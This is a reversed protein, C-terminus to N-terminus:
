PQLDFDHTTSDSAVTVRLESQRNYKAPVYQEVRETIGRSVEEETPNELTVVNTGTIQVAQEGPSVTTAYRGDVIQAGTTQGTGNVPMFSITGEAVPKGEFQVQGSVAIQDSRTGGCGMVLLMVSAAWVLRHRVDRRVM